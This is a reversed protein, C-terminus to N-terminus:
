SNRPKRTKSSGSATVTTISVPLEPFRSNWQAIGVVMSSRALPRPFPAGDPASLPLLRELMENLRLLLASDLRSLNVLAVCRPPSESLRDYLSDQFISDRFKRALSIPLGDPDPEAAHGPHDFDKIELYIWYARSLPLVFDVASLGCHALLHGASDDFRRAGPCARADLSLAGETFIRGEKM